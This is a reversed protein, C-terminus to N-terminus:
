VTVTEAGVAFITTAASSRGIAIRRFSSCNFVTSQGSEASGGPTMRSGLSTTSRTNVDCTTAPSGIRAACSAALSAPLPNAASIGACIRAIATRTSSTTPTAPNMWGSSLTSTITMRRGGLGTSASGVDLAM